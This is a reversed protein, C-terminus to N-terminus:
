RRRVAPGRPRRRRLALRLRRETLDVSHASLWFCLGALPGEVALALAVAVLRQGAGDSTMVDFWADVILMTGAAAAVPGLAASRRAAAVGTGALVVALGVDFGVWAARYYPVVQHGPLTLALYVTWPVLVLSFLVFMPGAWRALRSDDALIQEGADAAPHSM